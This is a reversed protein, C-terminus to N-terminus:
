IDGKAKNNSQYVDFEGGPYRKKLKKVNYEIVEEMDVGIARCMNMFYWAIDGLEKIMHDQVEANMEKGHFILKKVIENFEGVEGSLGIASTLLLPTNLHWEGELEKLRFIMAELNDSTESTVEGVFDRYAKLNLQKDGFEGHPPTAWNGAAWKANM